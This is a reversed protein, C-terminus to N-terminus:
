SLWWVADLRLIRAHPRGAFLTKGYLTGEPTIDDPYKAEGTVKARADVRTVSQGIIRTM